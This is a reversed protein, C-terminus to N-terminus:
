QHEAQRSGRRRVLHVAGGVLGLGILAAGGIALPSAGRAVEIQDTDADDSPPTSPPVPSATTPSPSASPSPSPTPTPAGSGTVDTAEGDVALTFRVPMPVGDPTDSDGPVGVTFYYDGPMSFGRSARFYMAPSDWRNRYRVEPVVNIDPNPPPDIQGRYKIWNVHKWLEQSDMRSRDPAYVDGFIPIYAPLPSSETAKIAASDPDPGDISYVASQSYGIPSRFFLMEGPVVETEYTGPGIELADNFSAGGIVKVPTGAPPYEMGTSSSPVDTVGEPLAGADAVAAEEIVVIEVPVPGTRKESDREVQLVLDTAEACAKKDEDTFEARPDLPLSLATGSLLMGANSLDDALSWRSDCKVGDLTSLTYDWHPTQRLERGDEQPLRAVTSARITSGPVTRQLRYHRVLDETESVPMTDTYQGVPLLPADDPTPTGEVPIGQVTFARLARTSLRSLTSTLVDADAADYYTGKGADAICRLQNRAKTDVAYGVTDVQISVDKDVLKRVVACPDPDCNEEGDSVLIIHRKGESGLDDVAKELSYAIPTDGQAKVADIQKTLGEVDLPGIPHALQTDVCSKTKDKGPYTAGYVRLGVQADDPLASIATSLAKKAATLKTTGSPDDGKMSGSADLVLLIRTDEATEDASAPPAAGLMLATGALATAIARLSRRM